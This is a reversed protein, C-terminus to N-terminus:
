GLGPIAKDTRQDRDHKLHSVIEASVGTQGDTPQDTVSESKWRTPTEPGERPMQPGRSRM